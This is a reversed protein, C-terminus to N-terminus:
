KGQTTEANKPDIEVEVERKMGGMMADMIKDKLGAMDAVGLVVELEDATIGKVEEGDVIRKYAVGQAVLLSLLWVIEDMMADVTKGSFADGINELGDYRKAIEKAAKTSFNLPYTSGAIEIEGIRNM